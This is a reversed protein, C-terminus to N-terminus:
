KMLLVENEIKKVMNFLGGLPKNFIQHVRHSKFECANDAVAESVAVNVLKTM